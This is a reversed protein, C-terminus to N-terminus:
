EDFPWQWKGGFNEHLQAQPLNKELRQRFQKQIYEVKKRTEAETLNQPIEDLAKKMATTYGPHSGRHLPLTPSVNAKTPLAIGNAAVDLDFGIKELVRHERLETPIIHHAAWDGEAPKGIAKGLAVSDGGQVFKVSKSFTDFEKSGSQLFRLLIKDGDEIALAKKTLFVEKSFPIKGEMIGKEILIAVREAKSLTKADLMALKIAPLALRAWSAREALIAVKESFALGGRIVAVQGLATGAFLLSIIFCFLLNNLIVSFPRSQMDIIQHECLTRELM